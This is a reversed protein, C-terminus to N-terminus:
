QLMVKLYRTAVEYIPLVDIHAQFYEYQESVKEIAQITEENSKFGIGAGKVLEPHGGSQLFVAPLGCSLAELLSNSCPDNQSATIYIDHQRLIGALKMSPCAPLINIRAFKEKTRGVFTFEYKSWDLNDEIWKYVPGGKKHNDSWSSAILKVKRKGDPPSIRSHCHFIAPDVANPIIVPNKFDIGIELHKDYSYHSQLVTVDAVEYNIDAIKRDTGDDTGRYVGVPGDVRHVITINKNEKVRRIKEVDFLYANLLCAKTQSGARNRSVNYGQIKLASELALIFQNTGGYPPRTFKHYIAVPAKTYASKLINLLDSLFM